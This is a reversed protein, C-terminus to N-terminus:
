PLIMLRQCKQLKENMGITHASHALEEGNEPAEEM